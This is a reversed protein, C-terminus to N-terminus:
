KAETYGIVSVVLRFKNLKSEAMSEPAYRGSKLQFRFPGGVYNLMMM